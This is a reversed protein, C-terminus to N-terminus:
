EIKVKEVAKDALKKTLKKAVVEVCAAYRHKMGAKVALQEVGQGAGVAIYSVLLEKGTSEGALLDAGTSTLSGILELETSAVALEPSIPTPVCALKGTIDSFGYAAKSTMRLVDISIEKSAVATDNAFNANAQEREKYGFAQYLNKILNPQNIALGERGDPDFYKFPNNNSYAYPNFGHISEKRFHEITGVPDIGYFRGIVPDYYRAQMYTLDTVDDKQHGTFGVDSYNQSPSKRGDGYPDYSERWLINGSKDMAALPSGSVDNIFYTVTEATASFSLLAVFLVLATQLHKM